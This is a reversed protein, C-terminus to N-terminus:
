EEKVIYYDAENFVALGSFEESRKAYKEVIDVYDIPMDGFKGEYLTKGEKNIVKVYDTVQPIPEM